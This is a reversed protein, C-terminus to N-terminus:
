TSQLDLDAFVGILEEEVSQPNSALVFARKKAEPRNTTFKALHVSSHLLKRGESLHMMAQLIRGTCLELAIFLVCTILTVRFSFLDDLKLFQVQLNKIAKNYEVITDRRAAKEDILGSQGKPDRRWRSANALAISAHLVAPESYCAPLVVDQWFGSSRVGAMERVTQSRFLEFTISESDALSPTSKLSLTAKPRIKPVSELYGLDTM